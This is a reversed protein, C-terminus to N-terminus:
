WTTSTSLVMSISPISVILGNVKAGHSFLTYVTILVSTVYCSSVFLAAYIATLLEARLPITPKLAAILIRLCTPSAGIILVREEVRPRLVSYFKYTASSTAIACAKPCKGRRLYWLIVSNILIFCSYERKPVRPVLRALFVNAVDVFGDCLELYFAVLDRYYRLGINTVVLHTNLKCLVPALISM